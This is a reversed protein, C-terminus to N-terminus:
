YFIELKPTARREALVTNRSNESCKLYPGSAVAVVV